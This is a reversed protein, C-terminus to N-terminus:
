RIIANQIRNTRPMGGAFTLHAKLFKGAINQFKDFTEKAAKENEAM